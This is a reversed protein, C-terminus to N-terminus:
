GRASCRFRWLTSFMRRSRGAGRATTGATLIPQPARSSRRDPLTTLASSSVVLAHCRALALCLRCRLWLKALRLRLFLLGRSGDGSRSRSLARTSTPPSAHVTRGASSDLLGFSERLLDAGVLFCLSPCGLSTGDTSLVQGVQLVETGVQPRASQRSEGVQQLMNRGWDGGMLYQLNVSRM